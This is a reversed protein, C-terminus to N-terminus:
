RGALRRWLRIVRRVYAQTEAYPPVGGYRLVAGAGANYAALALRYRTEPDRQRFRDLLIRLQRAAGSVNAVPDDADVGLDRATQPMLQGLGRAGVRSRAGPNWHSEVFIVAVLLRADLNQRDAQAITVAALDLATGDDLRPNFRQLARAYLALIPTSPPQAWACVPPTFGFITVALFALTRKM